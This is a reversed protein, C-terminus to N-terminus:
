QLGQTGDKKRVLMVRSVWPTDPKIIGNKSMEDMQRVVVFETDPSIRLPRHKVPLENPSYYSSEGDKSLDAKQAEQCFKEISRYCRMYRMDKLM